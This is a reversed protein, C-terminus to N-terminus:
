SVLRRDSPPHRADGPQTGCVQLFSILGAAMSLFVRLLRGNDGSRLRPPSLAVRFPGEAKPRPIVTKALARVRGLRSM